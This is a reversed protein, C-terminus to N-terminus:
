NTRIAPCLTASLQLVCCYFVLWPHLIFTTHLISLLVNIYTDSVWYILYQWQQSTNIHSLHQILVTDSGWLVHYISINDMLPIYTRIYKYDTHTHTHTHTHTRTHMHTHTHTHAHTYTHEHTGIQKDRHMDTYAISVYMRIYQVPQTYVHVHVCLICVYTCCLCTNVHECQYETVSEGVWNGGVGRCLKVRLYGLVVDLQLLILLGLVVVDLSM